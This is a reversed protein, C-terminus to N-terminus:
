ARAAPAPADIWGQPWACRSIEVPLEATPVTVVSQFTSESGKFFFFDCVGPHFNKWVRDFWDPDVGQAHSYNKLKTYIRADDGVCSGHHLIWDPPFYVARPNRAARLREKFRPMGRWYVERDVKFTFGRRLFVIPRYGDGPEVIQYNWKKFYARTSVRYGAEQTRQVEAWCKRLVEEPWIEDSDVILYYDAHPDLAMAAHRLRAASDAGRLGDLDRRMVVRIKNEPDPVALLVDLSGDHAMPQGILNRDYQSACCISDVVPYIARVCAEVFAQEKFLLLVAALRM